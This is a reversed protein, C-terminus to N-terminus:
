DTLTGISKMNRPQCKSVQTQDKSSAVITTEKTLDYEVAIYLQDAFMEAEKFISRFSKTENYNQFTAVLQVHPVNSTTVYHATKIKTYKYFNITTM